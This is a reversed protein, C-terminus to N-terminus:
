PPAGNRVEGGLSGVRQVAVVVLADRGGDEMGGHGEKAGKM